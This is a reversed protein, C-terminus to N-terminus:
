PCLTRTNWVQLESSGLAYSKQLCHLVMIVRVTQSRRFISVRLVDIVTRIQKHTRSYMFIHYCNMHFLKKTKNIARKKFMETFNWKLNWLVDKTVETITFKRSTDGALNYWKCPLYSHLSLQVRTVLCVMSPLCMMRAGLFRGSKKIRLYTCLVWGRTFTSNGGKQM